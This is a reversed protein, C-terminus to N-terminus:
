KWGLVEQLIKKHHSLLNKPIADFWMRVEPKKDLEVLFIIAITHGRKDLLESTYHTNVMNKVQVRLEKQIVERVREEILQGFRIFGGPFHWGQYYQDNRELLLIKKPNKIDDVVIAEIGIQPVVKIIADFLDAGIGQEPNKINHLLHAISKKLEDQSDTCITLKAM